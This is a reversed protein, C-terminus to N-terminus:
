ENRKKIALSDKTTFKQPLTTEGTDEDIRPVVIFAADKNENIFTFKNFIRIVM